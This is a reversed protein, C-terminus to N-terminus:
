AETAPASGFVDLSGSDYEVRKVVGPGSQALTREVIAATADPVREVGILIKGESIESDYCAPVRSPLKATVLLTIVASLIGGLMTLEFMVILNPWMSVIPMGGTNIPWLEQTTSTRYFGFALGAAGGLGSLWPMVTARDRGGFEYKEIPESSMVAIQADPLGASRLGDVARQASKPNTYLAYITKM